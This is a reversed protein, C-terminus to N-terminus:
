AILCVCGYRWSLLEQVHTVTTIEGAEPHGQYFRIRRRMETQFLGPVTKYVLSQILPDSRAHFFISNHNSDPPWEQLLSVYTLMLFNSKCYFFVSYQNSDRLWEQLPPFVSWHNFFPFYFLYRSCPTSLQKNESLILIRSKIRGDGSNMCTYRM